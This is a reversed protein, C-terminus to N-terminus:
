GLLASGSVANLARDISEDRACHRDIATICRSGPVLIKWCWAYRAGPRVLGAYLLPSSDPHARASDQRRVLVVGCRCFTRHVPAAQTGPVGVHPMAASRTRPM